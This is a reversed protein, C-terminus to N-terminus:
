TTNKFRTEINIEINKVNESDLIKYSPISNTIIIIGATIKIIVIESKM